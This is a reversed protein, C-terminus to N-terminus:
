TKSALCTLAMTTNHFRITLLFPSGTAPVDPYERKFSRTSTM